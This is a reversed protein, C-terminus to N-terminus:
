PGPKIELMQMMGFDEHTLVHCHMLMNGIFDPHLYTRFTVTGYNAANIDGNGGTAAPVLITDRWEPVPLVEGNIHTLLFPNQHIHFTHDSRTRNIVTWEEINGGLMDDFLSKSGDFLGQKQYNSRPGAPNGPDVPDGEDDADRMMPLNDFPLGGWYDADYQDFYYQCSPLRFDPNSMGGQKGCNEFAVRRMVDPVAALLAESSIPVNETPLPNGPLAMDLPDGEVIIKALTVPYTPNPFDGGIRVDRIGPAVGQPSVSYPANAPDIAQLLYTGAPPAKVLVDARNGAGLVLPTGVPLPLMDHVTIGDNAIVNFQTGELMVVLTLGSAANLMRWRQVEQPRMKYTPATAGNTTIHVASDIYTSYAGTRAFQTAETNLWPVKGNRDVRIAQFGLLVETAAQIEPVTDVTGPGGDVILFGSMGGFFQFAVTGHHHPHYWYTGPRHFAPIEVEFENSTQPLMHRFPNDGIGAQSVTLGHTHLNTTYPDHPFAGKRVQEPNPPLSNILEIHLRDGPNVRLTPGILKGEYTHTEVSKKAGTEADRITNTAVVAELVTDLVGDVSQRVEPQLVVDAPQDRNSGSCAVAMSALLVVCANNLQSGSYM